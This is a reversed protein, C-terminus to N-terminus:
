EGKNNQSMNVIQTEIAQKMFRIVEVGKEEETLAPDVFEAKITELLPRLENELLNNLKGM